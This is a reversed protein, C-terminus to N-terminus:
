EPTNRKGNWAGRSGAPPNGWEQCTECLMVDCPDNGQPIEKGMGHVKSGAPPNGWVQCTECLMGDCPDNGLSIEKGM